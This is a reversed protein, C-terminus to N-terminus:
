RLWTGTIQAHSVDHGKDDTVDVEYFAIRKGSKVLRATAFLTGDSPSFLYQISSSTNVCMRGRTNTAVAFAFDSLVFMVGGMVHGTASLHSDNIKVSVKSYDDGAEDIVIGTAEMAYKDSAFFNRVEELEREDFKESM